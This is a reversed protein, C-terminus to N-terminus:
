KGGRDMKGVISEPWHERVKDENRYYDVKAESEYVEQYPTINIKGSDPYECVDIGVNTRLDLYVCPKDTHNYLQHAGGPGSEFFLVDGAKVGKFVSQMRLTAEGSLIVFIEESQRHFHYPYSFKGADISRIDFYLHKSKVMDSLRPSTHWLFEPIPSQRLSFSLNAANFIEPM